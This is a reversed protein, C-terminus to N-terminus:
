RMFSRYHQLSWFISLANILKWEPVTWCSISICLNIYYKSFDNFLSYFVHQLIDIHCFANICSIPRRLTCLM